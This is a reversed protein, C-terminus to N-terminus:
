EFLETAEMNMASLGRLFQVRVRGELQQRAIEERAIRRHAEELDTRLGRLVGEYRKVIEGTVAGAREEVRRRGSAEASWARLARLLIARHPATRGALLVALSRHRRSSRATRRWSVLVRPLSPPGGARGWRDEEHRAAAAEARREVTQQLAQGEKQSSELDRTLDSIKTEHVTKLTQLQEIQQKLGEEYDKIQDQIAAVTPELREKIIKQIDM